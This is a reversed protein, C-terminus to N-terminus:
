VLRIALALAFSASGMPIGHVLFHVLSLPGRMMRELVAEKTADEGTVAETAFMDGLTKSARELKDKLVSDDYSAVLVQAGGEVFLLFTCLEDIAGRWQSGLGASRKGDLLGKLRSRELGLRTRLPRRKASSMGGGERATSRVCRRHRLM